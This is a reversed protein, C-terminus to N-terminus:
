ERRRVRGPRYFINAVFPRDLKPPQVNLQADIGDRQEQLSMAINMEENSPDAHRYNDLQADLSNRLKELSERDKPTLANRNVEGADDDDDHEKDEDAVEAKPNMAAEQDEDKPAAKRKPQAKM